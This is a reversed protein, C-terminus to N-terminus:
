LWPAALLSLAVLGRERPRSAALPLTAVLGSERTRLIQRARGSAVSFIAHPSGVHRTRSLSKAINALLWWPSPRMASHHLAAGPAWSSRTAAFGFCKKM